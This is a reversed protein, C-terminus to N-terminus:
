HKALKCDPCGPCGSAHQQIAGAGKVINGAKHLIRSIIQNTKTLFGPIQITNNAVLKGQTWIASVEQEIEMATKRIQHLLFAVVMVVVVALALSGGWVILIAEQSYEM